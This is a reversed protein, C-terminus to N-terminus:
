NFSRRRLKKETLHCKKDFTSETFLGNESFIDTMNHGKPLIFKRDFPTRDFPSETLYDKPWVANPWVTNTWHNKTLRHETQLQLIRENAESIQRILWDKFIHM